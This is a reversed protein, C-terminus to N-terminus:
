ECTISKVKIYLGMGHANVEGRREELIPAAKKMTRHLNDSSPNKHNSSQCSKSGIDNVENTKENNNVEGIFAGM